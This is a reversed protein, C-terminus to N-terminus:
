KTEGGKEQDLGSRVNAWCGVSKEIGVAVWGEFSEGPALIRLGTDVGEEELAFPDPVCTYPEICIAQRHPPTFVVCQRFVESCRMWVTRGAEPDRLTVTFFGDRSDLDGFVHDLEMESFPRGGRLDANGHVAVRRGTPLLHADLEWVCGAPVTITWAGATGGGQPVRFYPHLGFGCPLLRKRDVNQVVFSCTLVGGRIDYGVSVEYDSPWLGPLIRSDLGESARFRAEARHETCTTVQWPKGVVQGHLANGFGDVAPLRYERGLFRFRGHGIRGPFPFLVPVGGLYSSGIGKEFGEPRWLVPIEESGAQLTLEFCNFGLGPLVRGWAATESDQIRLIEM